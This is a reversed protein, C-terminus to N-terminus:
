EVVEAEITAVALVEEITTQGDKIKRLGDQVLLTMGDAVAQKRLLSTDSREMTLKAMGPTMTMLEFVALRGKYGTDNCEPCGVAKYFVIKKAQETSLGISQLLDKPPEYTLKCAPCLRRVLRQAMILVVSSAILFPEVGM